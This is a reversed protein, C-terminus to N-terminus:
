LRSESIEFLSESLSQIASLLEHNMQHFLSTIRCSSDSRAKEAIRQLKTEVGEENIPM